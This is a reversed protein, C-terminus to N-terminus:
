DLMTTNEPSTEGIEVWGEDKTYGYIVDPQAEVVDKVYHSIEDNYSYKDIYTDHMDDLNLFQNILIKQNDTM